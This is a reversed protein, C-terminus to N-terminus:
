EAERKINFEKLKNYITRESCNFYKACSKATKSLRVYQKYLEEESINPKLKYLNYIHCYHLITDEHCNFYETCERMTKNLEIYQYQLDKKSINLKNYRIPIVKINYKKVLKRITHQSCNFYKACDIQTKKLELLQYYLDKKSINISIKSLRNANAKTPDKKIKYKKLNYQIIGITYNFYEACEKITKNLEIYQYYLDDYPITNKTLKINQMALKTHESIKKRAEESWEHHEGGLTLNFGYESDTTNFLKILAQEKLCAQEKTLNEFLIEHKFSDWGYKKITNTLYKNHSYNCGNKGWRIEPKQCTIGIYKRGDNLLTHMYVYYNKNM